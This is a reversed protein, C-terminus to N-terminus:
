LGVGKSKSARRANRRIETTANITQDRTPTTLGLLGLEWMKTAEDIENDEEDDSSELPEYNKGSKIEEEADGKVKNKKKRKKEKTQKDSALLKGHKRNVKGTKWTKSKFSESLTLIQNQNEDVVYNQNPGQNNKFGLSQSLAGDARHDKLIEM